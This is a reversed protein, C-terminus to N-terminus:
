LIAGSLCYVKDYIFCAGRLKHTAGRRSVTTSVRDRPLGLIEREGKGGDDETRKLCSYRTYATAICIYTINRIGTLLVDAATHLTNRIGIGIPNQQFRNISLLIGWGWTYINDYNRYM